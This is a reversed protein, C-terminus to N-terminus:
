IDAEDESNVHEPSSFAPVSSKEKGKTVRRRKRPGAEDGNDDDEVDAAPTKKKKKAHNGGVDSREKRKKPEQADVRSQAARLEDKNVKAWRCSGSELAQLLDRVDGTRTLTSPAGFPVQTPWGILHVKHAVIIDRDYNTYSMQVDKMRTIYCLNSLIISGCTKKRDNMNSPGKSPGSSSAVAWSEFRRMMDWMGMNLREKVFATANGCAWWCAAGTCDIDGRTIFGFGIAGTRQHLNFFEDNMKRSFAGMDKSESGHSARAGQARELRKEALLEKAKLLDEETADQMAPDAAVAAQIDKLKMKQGPPLDANLEFAKLSVLANQSSEKRKKKLSTSLLKRCHELTSGEELAIEELKKDQEAIFELLRTHLKSKKELAVARGIKMNAKQGDTLHKKPREIIPQVPLEPHRQAHTIPTPREQPDPTTEVM